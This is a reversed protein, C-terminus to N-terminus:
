SCRDMKEGTTPKCFEGACLRSKAIGFCRQRTRRSVSLFNDHAPNPCSRETFIATGDSGFKREMCNMKANDTPVLSFIGKFFGNQPNKLINRHNTRILSSTLHHVDNLNEHLMTTARFEWRSWSLLTQSFIPFLHRATSKLLNELKFKHLLLPNLPM